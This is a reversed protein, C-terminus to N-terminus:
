KITVKYTVLKHDIGVKEIKIRGNSRRILKLEVNRPVKLEYSVSVKPKKKLHITEIKLGNKEIVKIEVKKLEDEKKSTRKVAIMEVHQKDWGTIIVSGNINSLEIKEGAKIDFDQQIKEEKHLIGFLLVGCSLFALSISLIKM